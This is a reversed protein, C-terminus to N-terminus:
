LNEENLTESFIQNITIFYNIRELHTKWLQRNNKQIQIIEENNYKEFFNLIQDIINTRDTLILIHKNWDIIKNLPLPCDTDMLVPIRGVALVQFFRVSFNGVGRMCFTFINKEINEYFEKSTKSRNSASALFKNARYKKRLIFETMIRNDESMLKLFKARKTVHFYRAKDFNSTLKERGQIVLKFYNFVGKLYSLVSDDAHGVFGIKPRETKSLFNINSDLEIDYPDQIFSPIIIVNEDQKSQFGGLRFQYGINLNLNLDSDGALYYWLPKHYSNSLQILGEFEIPYKKFSIYDIPIVVIDSLSIDDVIEYIGNLRINNQYVLDFLLPFVNKRNEQNLFKRYTFLRLKTM